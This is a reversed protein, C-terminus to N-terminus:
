GSTVDRRRFVVYSIVVFIVTYVLMTIGAQWVESNTVGDDYGKMMLQQSGWALGFKQITDFVDSLAALLGFIAPELFGIGISVAIGAAISRTVLALMFALAATPLMTLLIRGTAFVIGRFIEVSGGPSEGSIMSAVSSFLTPTVGVLIVTLVVTYILLTLWKATLLSSRSTARALLPRITNWSYESGILGAALISLLISAFLLSISMGNEQVNTLLLGDQVDLKEEGSLAFYAILFAGYFLATLIIGILILMWSQSRKRLRFLESRLLNMM